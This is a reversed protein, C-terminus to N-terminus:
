FEPLDTLSSLVFGMHSQMDAPLKSLVPTTRGTWPQFFEQTWPMIVMQQGSFTVFRTQHKLGLSNLISLNGIVLDDKKALELKKSTGYAIRVFFIKTEPDQAVGCVLLPRPNTAWNEKPNTEPFFGTVISYIDPKVSEWNAM